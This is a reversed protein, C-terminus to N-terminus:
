KAAPKATVQEIRKEYDSISRGTLKLGNILVTPTGTVNCKKAEAIDAALLEDTRPESSVMEDFRGVDLDLSEAYKRLDARGLEKPNAIIMDHFKWFAEEGRELKAFEAAAHAPKAQKHFKLPYHKFVFRVTEPYKDLIQKIKPFERICYPCQFDMFAVITVPADKPGLVPSTGVNIDYVTTDPAKRAKAKARTDLKSLMNRIDKRVARLENRMASVESHLKRLEEEVPDREVNFTFYVEEASNVPDNTRIRIMRRAPGGPIKSKDFKVQLKGLEQPPLLRDGSYGSFCKCPGDVETVRLPEDGNNFFYVDAVIETTEAAITGLDIQSEQVEISPGKTVPPQADSNTNSDNQIELATESAVCGFINFTSALFLIVAARRM